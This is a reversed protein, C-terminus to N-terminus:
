LDIQIVWGATGTRGATGTAGNTGTGTGSGGAGGAGGTGGAAAISGSNTLTQYILIVVGGAGGVGGSGGAGGGCNAGVPTGGAGGAGGTGGTSTISGTAGVTLSPTALLIMGGGQGGSGNAGSGGGAQSGNGGGSGGGGPLGQAISENVWLTATTSAYFLGTIANVPNRPNSKAITLTGNTGGNGGTGGAGSSGNGGTAGASSASISVSPYIISTLNTGNTGNAGSTGTTTGGNQGAIGNLGNTSNLSLSGASMASTAGSATGGTVGSAAGGAAGTIGNVHITGDVTISTSAFIRYQGTLTVGSNVVLTTAYLDRTLTYISSSPTLGAVVSSGDFTLAGDSGDGGYPFSAGGGTAATTQTTGDPFKFGGTKSEVVGNVTLPSAPSSDGIGVKGGFYASYNNTAATFANIYLGFATDITGTGVKTLGEVNIARYNVTNSTGTGVKPSADLAFAIKGNGPTVTLEGMHIGHTDESSSSQTGGIEIRVNALPATGVGFSPIELGLAPTWNFPGWRIWDTHFVDSVGSNDVLGGLLNGYFSNDILSVDATNEIRIGYDQLPTNRTDNATIHSISGTTHSSLYIGDRQWVLSADATNNDSYDGGEINITSEVVYQVNSQVGASTTLTLHTDDEVSAITYDAGNIAIPTGAQWGLGFRLSLTGSIWTVATGNTDVQGFNNFTVLGSNYNLRSTVQHLTTRPSGQVIIGVQGAGSSLTNSITTDDSRFIEINPHALTQDLGNGVFISNSVQTHFCNFIDIGDGTERTAGAGATAPNNGSSNVGDVITYQSGNECLVGDGNLLGSIVGGHLSSNNTGTFAVGGYSPTTTADIGTITPNVVQNGSGGYIEIARVRDVTAPLTFPLIATNEVVCKTSNYVGVVDAGATLSNHVTNTIRCPATVGDFYIHPGGGTFTFNSVSVDSSNHAYVQHTVATRASSVHCGELNIHDGGLVIQSSDTSYTLTIERGVCALDHNSSISVSGAITGSATVYIVGKTSGLEADAAQIWEGLTTGSCWSPATSASCAAPYIASENLVSFTAGMPNDASKTEFVGPLNSLASTWSSDLTAASPSALPIRNAAATTSALGFPGTHTSLDLADGWTSDLTSDSKARPVKDIAATTSWLSNGTLDIATGWTVDLTGDSKALPILNPGAVTSGVSSGPITLYWSYVNGAAPTSQVIYSGTAACITFRGYQDTASPNPQLQSLAADYYIPTYLPSCPTGTASSLCVRVPASKVPQGSGAPTPPAIVQHTVCGSTTVTQALGCASVLSLAFILALAIRRM